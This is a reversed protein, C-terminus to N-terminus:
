SNEHDLDTDRKCYLVLSHDVLTYGHRKAVDHQLQEIDADFFEIIDQSDVDVLHDHHTQPLVEYRTSLGDNLQLQQLIGLQVLSHICRYVTSKGITPALALCRTYITDVDPHDEAKIIIEFIARRQPTMTYGAGLWKGILVHLDRSVDITKRVLLYQTWRFM